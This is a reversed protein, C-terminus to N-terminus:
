RKGVFYTNKTWEAVEETKFLGKFDLDFLM